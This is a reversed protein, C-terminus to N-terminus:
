GVEISIYHSEVIGDVDRLVGFNVSTGAQWEFIREGQPAFKQVFGHIAEEASDLDSDVKYSAQAEKFEM